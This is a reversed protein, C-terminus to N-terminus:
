PDYFAFVWYRDEDILPVTIRVDSQSLDYVASSYLTDVNPANVQTEDPTALTPQPVFVNISGTDM